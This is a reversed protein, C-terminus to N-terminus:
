IWYLFFYLEVWHLYLHLIHILVQITKYYIMM